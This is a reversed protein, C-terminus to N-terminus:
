GGDGYQYEARHAFDLFLPTLLREPAVYIIKYRGACAYEMARRIQNESLRVTSIRRM